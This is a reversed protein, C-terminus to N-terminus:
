PPPPPPAHSPPHTHSHCQTLSHCHRLPLPISPIKPNNRANQYTVLRPDSSFQSLYPTATATHSHLPQTNPSPTATAPHCHSLHIKRSIALMKIPSLDPNPSATAPKCQCHPQIATATLNSIICARQCSYITAVAVWQWGAVRGCQWAAVSSCVAV